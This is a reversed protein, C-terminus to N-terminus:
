TAVEVGKPQALLDSLRKVEKELELKEGMLASVEGCLQKIMRADREARAADEALQDLNVPVQNPTANTPM